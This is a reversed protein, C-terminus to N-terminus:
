GCFTCNVGILSELRVCIGAQSNTQRGAKRQQKFKSTKISNWITTHCGVKPFRRLPHFDMDMLEQPFARQTIVPHACSPFAAENKMLFTLVDIFKFKM